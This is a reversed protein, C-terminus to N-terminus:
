ISFIFSAHFSKTFIVSRIWTVWVDLPPSNEEHMQQGRNIPVYLAWLWQTSHRGRKKKNKKQYPTRSMDKYGEYPSVFWVVHFDSPVVTIKYIPRCFDTMFFSALLSISNWVVAALILEIIMFHRWNLRKRDNKWQPLWCWTVFEDM